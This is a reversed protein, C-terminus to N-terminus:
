AYVDINQGLGTLAADMMHLLESIADVVVENAMKMVSQSAENQVHTMQANPSAGVAAINMLEM